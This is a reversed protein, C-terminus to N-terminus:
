SKSSGKKAKNIAMIPKKFRNHTGLFHEKQTYLIVKGYLVKLKSGNGANYCERDISTKSISFYHFLM